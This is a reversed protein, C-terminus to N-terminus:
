LHFLENVKKKKSQLQMDFAYSKIEPPFVYRCDKLNAKKGGKYELTTYKLCYTEYSWYKKVNTNKETSTHLPLMVM